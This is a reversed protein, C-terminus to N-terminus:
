ISKRDRGTNITRIRAGPLTCSLKSGECAIISGYGASGTRRRYIKPFRKVADFADEPLQYGNHFPGDPLVKSVYADIAEDSLWWEMFAKVADVNDSDKNGYLAAATFITM